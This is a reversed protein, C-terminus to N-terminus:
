FDAMGLQKLSASGAKPLKLLTLTRGANSNIGAGNEQSKKRSTERRINETTEEKNRKKHRSKKVYIKREM